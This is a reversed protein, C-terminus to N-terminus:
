SGLGLLKPLFERLIIAAAAGGLAFYVRYVKEQHELKIVRESLKTVKEGLEKHDAEMQVHVKEISQKVEDIQKILMEIIDQSM